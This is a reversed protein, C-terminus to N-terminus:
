SFPLTRWTPWNGLKLVLQGREVRQSCRRRSASGPRRRSRPAPRATGREQLDDVVGALVARVDLDPRGAAARGIVGRLDEVADDSVDLVDGVGLLGVGRRRPELHFTADAIQPDRRVVGAGVGEVLFDVQAPHLVREADIEVGVDLFRVAGVRPEAEHELVHRFVLERHLIGLVLIDGCGREVVFVAPDGLVVDPDGLVEAALRHLVLQDGELVGLGLFEHLDPTGLHVARGPPRRHAVEQLVGVRQDAIDLVVLDLPELDGAALDDVALVPGPAVDRDDAHRALFGDDVALHVALAVDARQLVRLPHIVVVGRGLDLEPRKCFLIGYM